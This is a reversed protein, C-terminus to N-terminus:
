SPDMNEQLIAVILRPLDELSDIPSDAHRISVYYLKEIIELAKIQELTTVQAQSNQFMEHIHEVGKLPMDYVENEDINIVSRRLFHLERSTKEAKKEPEQLDKTIRKSLHSFYSPHFLLQLYHRAIAIDNEESVIESTKQISLDFRHNDRWQAFDTVNDPNFKM